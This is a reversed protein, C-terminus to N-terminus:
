LVTCYLVTCYLVTCYLVICYRAIYKGKGAGSGALVEKM